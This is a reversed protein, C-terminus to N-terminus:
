FVSSLFFSNKGHVLQEPTLHAPLTTLYFENLWLSFRLEKERNESAKMWEIPPRAKRLRAMCAVFLAPTTPAIPWLQKNAEFNAIFWAIAKNHILALSYDANRMYEVERHTLSYNRRIVTYSLNRGMAVEVGRDVEIAAIVSGAPPLRRVRKNAAKAKKYQRVDFAAGTDNDTSFTAEIKFLFYNLKNKFKHFFKLYIL